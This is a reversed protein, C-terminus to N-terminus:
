IRTPHGQITLEADICMYYHHKKQPNGKSYYIISYNYYQQSFFITHYLQKQLLWLSVEVLNNMTEFSFMAFVEM